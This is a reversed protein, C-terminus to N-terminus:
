RSFRPQSRGQPKGIVDERKPYGLRVPLSVGDKAMKEELQGLEQLIRQHLEKPTNGEADTEVEWIKNIEAIRDKWYQQKRTKGDFEKSLEECWAKLTDVNTKAHCLIAYDLYNPNQYYAENKTKENTEELKKFEAENENVDKELKAIIEQRKIMEAKAATIQERVQRKRERLEALRQQLAAEM